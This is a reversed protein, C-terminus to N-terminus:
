FLIIGTPPHKGAELARLVNDTRIRRLDGFADPLENLVRRNRATDAVVLVAPGKTKVDLEHHDNGRLKWTVEGDYVVPLVKDTEIITEWKPDFQPDRM